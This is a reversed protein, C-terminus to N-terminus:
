EHSNCYSVFVTFNKLMKAVGLLKLNVIYCISLDDSGLYDVGHAAAVACKGTNQSCQIGINQNAAADTAACLHRECGCVNLEVTTDGTICIRSYLSKYVASQCEIGIHLTVVVIMMAFAVGATIVAAAAMVTSAMM